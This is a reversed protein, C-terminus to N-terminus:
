KPTTLFWAILQPVEQRLTNGWHEFRPFSNWDMCHWQGDKDHIWLSESFELEFAQSLLRCNSYLEPPCQHAEVGSRFSGPGVQPAISGGRVESGVNVVHYWEGEPIIQFCLPSKVYNWMLCERLNQPVTQSNVTFPVLPVIRIKEGNQQTWARLYAESTVLCTEPLGISNAEFLRQWVADMFFFRSRGGPIPPNIIPCQFDLLTGLLVAYGEKHMYDRDKASWNEAQDISLPFQGRWFVAAVSSWPILREQCTIQSQGHFSGVNWILRSQFVFEEPSVIVGRSGQRQLIDLVHNSLADERSAFTIIM